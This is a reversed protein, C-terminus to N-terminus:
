QFITDGVVQQYSHPGSIYYFDPFFEEAVLKDVNDVSKRCIKRGCIKHINKTFMVNKVLAIKRSKKCKNCTIHVQKPCTIWMTWM